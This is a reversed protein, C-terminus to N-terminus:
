GRYYGRTDIAGGEARAQRRRDIRTLVLGTVGRGTGALLTLASRARDASVADWRLAFLVGDCYRAVIRADPVVLVPPTDILVVDYAARAARVLGAFGPASLLDAANADTKSALLLDAGLSLDHVVADAMDRQGAIVANLGGKRSLGLAKAISRRRIDGEIVLVRRDLAAVSRALALTLITKGEGPISSTVALVRAGGVEGLRLGVRLHRVAESLASDPHRALHTIVRGRGRRPLDPVAGLVPLGLAAEAEDARRLTDRGFAARLVVFGALMLGLFAGLALVLMPRPRAPLASPSAPSLVASGPGQAALQMRTETLDTLFSEYVLRAAAAERQLQALTVADQAVAAIRDTLAAEEARLRDLATRGGATDARALAAERAAIRDRLADLDARLVDPADPRIVQRDAAFAQARREATELDAQLDAVRGSLWDATRDARAVQQDVQRAQYEAVLANALDAALAPDRAEAIVEIVHSDPLPRLIYAARLRDLLASLDQDPSAAPSAWDPMMRVWGPAGRSARAFDPHGLLDLDAAVRALLTRSGLVEVKTNVVSNGAGFSPLAAGLDPPSLDPLDLVLVATAQYRPDALLHLWAAALALGLGAALVLRGMRARLADIVQGPDILPDPLAPVPPIPHHKM